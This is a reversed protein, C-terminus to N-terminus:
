QESLLLHTLTSREIDPAHESSYLCRLATDIAESVPVNTYLSKVDLSIIKELLVSCLEGGTTKLLM